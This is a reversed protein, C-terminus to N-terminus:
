VPTYQRHHGQWQSIQNPPTGSYIPNGVMARNVRAMSCPKIYYTNGRRILVGTEVHNAMRSRYYQGIATNDVTRFFLQKEIVWQVKSYSVIELLSRLMGRLSSGRIVPMSEDGTNFFEPKNKVPSDKEEQQAFDKAPVPGRIYLPSRTILTVDFYGSRFKRYYKDHDPLEQANHVIPIIKEPLPVFNYPTSATRNPGPNQHEPWPILITM